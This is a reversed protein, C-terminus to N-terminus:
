VPFLDFFLLAIKKKRDDLSFDSEMPLGIIYLKKLMGLEQFLKLHYGLDLDHCSCPNHEKLQDVDTILVINKTGKVVDMIVLTDSEIELEDPSTCKVFEFGKVKLEDAIQKALSDKKIFENGFCYVKM